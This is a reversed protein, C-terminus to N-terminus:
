LGRYIDAIALTTELYPVPIASQDLLTTHLWEGRANRYHREVRMSDQEVILYTQLSPIATYTALKERRDTTETSPSIIEVILCPDVELYPDEVEPGCVVMADPYYFMDDSVRLKMASMYVRCSTGSAADWLKCLINGAIQNHRRTVDLRAFLKGAIYEHRFLGDRELELYDDICLHQLPAATEVM